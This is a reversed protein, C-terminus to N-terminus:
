LVPLRRLDAPGTAGAPDFGAEAFVRRWYPVTQGAHVLMTRLREAAVAAAAPECELRAGLALEARAWGSRRLRALPWGRASVALHRLPGPLRHYVPLLSKAWRRAHAELAGPRM